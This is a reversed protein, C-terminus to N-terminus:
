LQTAFRVSTLAASQSGLASLSVCLWMGAPGSSTWLRYLVASLIYQVFSAILMMSCAASITRCPCLRWTLTDLLEANWNTWHAAQRKGWALAPSVAQLRGPLLMEGWQLPRTAWDSCRM